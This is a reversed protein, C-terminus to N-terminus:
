PARTVVLDAGSASGADPLRYQTDTRYLVDDGSLVEAALGHPDGKRLDRADYELSFFWPFGAFGEEERDAVTEGTRLNVLKVRVRYTPLVTVRDPCSVSGAATRPQPAKAAEEAARRAREAAGWEGGCLPCHSCGAALAALLVISVLPTKM